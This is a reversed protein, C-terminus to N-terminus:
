NFYGAPYLKPNKSYLSIPDYGFYKLDLSTIPTRDFAIYEEDPNGPEIDEIYPADPSYYMTIFGWEGIKFSVAYIDEFRFQSSKATRGYMSIFRQFYTSPVKEVIATELLEDKDDETLDYSNQPGFNEDLILDYARNLM